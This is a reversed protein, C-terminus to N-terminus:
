YSGLLIPFGLMVCGADSVVYQFNVKKGAVSIPKVNVSSFGYASLNTKFVYQPNLKNLADNVDGNYFLTFGLPSYNNFIYNLDDIKAFVIQGTGNDITQLKEDCIKESLYVEVSAGSFISELNLSKTVSLNVGCLLLIILVFVILKKM